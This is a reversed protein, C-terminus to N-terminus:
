KYAVCESMCSKGGSRAWEFVCAFVNLCEASEEVGLENLCVLLCM